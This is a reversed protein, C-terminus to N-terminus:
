DEDEYDEDLLLDNRQAMEYVEAESLWNLCLDAVQRPDLVDQDMLDM